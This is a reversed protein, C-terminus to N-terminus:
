QAQPQQSQPQEQQEEVQRRQMRRVNVGSRTVDVVRVQGRPGISELPQGNAIVQVGGANGTVMTIQENAQIRRSEGAPLLRKIVQNGDATISLWTDEVAKVELVMGQSPDYPTSASPQAPAPTTVAAEGPASPTTNTPSASEAPAPTTQRAEPQSSAAEATVPVGPPPTAISSGTDSPRNSTEGHSQQWVAYFASCAVTVTVLLVLFFPLRNPTSGRATSPLPPVAYPDHGPTLLPPPAEREAEIMRALDPEFLDEELGLYRAYQRVFSRYFFNGPLSDVDDAEIAELYRVNIRTESAIKELELGQRLREQRLTEGVSTM